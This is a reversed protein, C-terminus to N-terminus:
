SSPGESGCRLGCHRLYHRYGFHRLNQLQGAVLRNVATLEQGRVARTRFSFSSRSGCVCRELGTRGGRLWQNTQHYQNRRCAEKLCGALRGRQEGSM